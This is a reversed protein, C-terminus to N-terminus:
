NRKSNYESLGVNELAIKLEAKLQWTVPGDNNENKSWNYFILSIHEFDQEFTRGYKLEKLCDYLDHSVPDQLVLNTGDKNRNELDIREDRLRAKFDNM